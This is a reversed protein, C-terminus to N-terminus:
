LRRLKMNLALNRSYFMMIEQFFIMNLTTDKKRIKFSTINM